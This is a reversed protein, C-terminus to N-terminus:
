RAHAAGRVVPRYVSGGTFGPTTARAAMGRSFDIKLSGKVLYFFGDCGGLDRALTKRYADDTPAIAYTTISPDHQHCYALAALGGLDVADIDAVVADVNEKLIRKYAQGYSHVVHVQWGRREFLWAAQYGLCVNGTLILCKKRAM